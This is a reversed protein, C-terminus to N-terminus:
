SMSTGDLLVSLKGTKKFVDMIRHNHYEPLFYPVARTYTSLRMNTLHGM